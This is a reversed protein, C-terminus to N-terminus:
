RLSTGYRWDSRACAGELSRRLKSCSCRSVGASCSSRPPWGQVHCRDALRAPGRPPSTADVQPLCAPRFRTAPPRPQEDCSALPVAGALGAGLIVVSRQRAPPSASDPQRVRALISSALGFNILGARSNSVRSTVIVNSTVIVATATADYRCNAQTGCRSEFGFVRRAALFGTRLIHRAGRTEAYQWALPIFPRAAAPFVTSDQASELSLHQGVDQRWLLVVLNRAQSAARSVITARSHPGVSVFAEDPPLM